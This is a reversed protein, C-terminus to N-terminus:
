KLVIERQIEGVQTVTAQIIIRPHAQHLIHPNKLKNTQENKVRIDTYYAGGNVHNVLETNPPELIEHRKVQCIIM